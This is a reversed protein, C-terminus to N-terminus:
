DVAVRGDRGYDTLSYTAHDEIGKQTFLQKDLLEAVANALEQANFAPFAVSMHQASLANGAVRSHGLLKAALSGIVVPRKTKTPSKKSLKLKIPSEQISAAPRSVAADVAGRFIWTCPLLFRTLFAYRPSKLPFHTHPSRNAGHQTEHKPLSPIGFMSLPGVRLM